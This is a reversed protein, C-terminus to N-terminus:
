QLRYLTFPHPFDSQAGTGEEDLQVLKSHAAFWSRMRRLQAEARVLQKRFDSSREAHPGTVLFTPVAPPEPESAFELSAVPRAVVIRQLNLQFVLAPEGYVYCLLPGGPAHAGGANTHAMEGIQSAVDALGRRSEWGPVGRRLLDSSNWALLMAGTAGAAAVLWRTSPSRVDVANHSAIAERGKGLDHNRRAFCALCCGAGFWSSALWPLMLRVYPTYLPTVVGLGTFWAALLWLGWPDLSGTGKATRVIERLLGLLALGGLVPVSGIWAALGCCLLGLATTTGAGNWTFRPSARLGSLRAAAVAVGVGAITFPGDLSRVHSWQTVLSHWWGGIGVLYGRHNTAVAAYGGSDQLSILWPLWLLGATLAALGWLVVRSRADARTPPVCMAGALSAAGVALPLWGNYKTWWALATLVGAAIALGRSRRGYAESLLAVAGTLWFTLLVDTLAARSFLLHVDSFATLCAASMGAAPGGWRRGTWWVLPVTLTGALLSVLMAGFNSPGGFVFMWEIAFPLLPPAYLHQMPYTYGYEPLFINSAYVGEDFHEVAMRSPWAIRLGLAGLTLLLIGVLETRSVQEGCHPSPSVVSPISTAAPISPRQPPDAVEHHRKM